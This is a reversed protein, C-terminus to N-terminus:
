PKSKGRTRTKSTFWRRGAWSWRGREKRGGGRTNNYGREQDNQKQTKAKYHQHQQIEKFVIVIAWAFSRWPGGVLIEGKM